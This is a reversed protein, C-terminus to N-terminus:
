RAFDQNTPLGSFNTRTGVQVTEVNILCTRALKPPSSSQDIQKQFIHRALMSAIALGPLFGLVSISWAWKLTKYRHWQEDHSGLM